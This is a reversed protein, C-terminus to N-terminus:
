VSWNYKIVPVPVAVSEAVSFVGYEEHRNLIFANTYKCPYSELHERAEVASRFNGLTRFRNCLIENNPDYIILAFQKIAGNDRM